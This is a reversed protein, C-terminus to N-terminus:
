STLFLDTKLQVIWALISFGAPHYIWHTWILTSINYFAKAIVTDSLCLDVIHQLLKSLFIVLTLSIGTANIRSKPHPRKMLNTPLGNGKRMMFLSIKLLCANFIWCSNQFGSIRRREFDNDTSRFSQNSEVVHLAQIIEAKTILQQLNIQEQLFSKSVTISGTQSCGLTAQSKSENVAKQHKASKEHQKVKEKGTQKVSFEQQCVKCIGKYKDNSVGTSWNRMSEWSVQYKITM